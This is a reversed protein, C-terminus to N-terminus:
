SVVAPVIPKESHEGDKTKTWLLVLPWSPLLFFAVRVCVCVGRNAAAYIGNAIPTVLHWSVRIKDM